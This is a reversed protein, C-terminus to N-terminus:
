ENSLDITQQAREARKEAKKELVMRNFDQWTIQIKPPAIDTTQGTAQQLKDLIIGMSITLSKIDTKGLDENSDSLQELKQNVVELSLKAAFTIKRIQLTALPKLAESHRDELESITSRSLGTAESTKRLSTGCSRMFLANIAAERKTKEILPGPQKCVTTISKDLAAAILTMEKRDSDGLIPEPTDPTIM